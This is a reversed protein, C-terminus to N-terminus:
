LDNYLILLRIQMFWSKVMGVGALRLDSFIKFDEFRRVEDFVTYDPWCATSHQQIRLAAMLNQM